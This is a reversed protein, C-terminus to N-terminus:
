SVYKVKESHKAVSTEDHKGFIQYSKLNLLSNVIVVTHSHVVTISGLSLYRFSRSHNANWSVM